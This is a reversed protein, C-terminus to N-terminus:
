KGFFSQSFVFGKELLTKDFNENVGHMNCDDNALSVLLPDVGIVQQIDAVVPLTAGCYDVLVKEGYTKELLKMVHQHMPSSLDVKVPPVSTEVNTIEAAVYEPTHKSVFVELLKIAGNPTQSAALRFNIRVEATSPVINSYGKGTYGSSFGSATHMSRFGVTSCFGEEDGLFYRKIGTEKLMNSKHEDMEICQKRIEPKMMDDDSYFGPIMSVGEANHMKSVLVALEEAANPVTGGFLGSHLNNKATKYRITVNCVGRFSATLVPRYPMEGDSIMVHDAKFTGKEQEARLLDGIGMGGTEEDGEIIFKVNYKLKKRKILSFVSYMHTLVQGKNDVVGRGFLKEDKEMLVFPDGYWGNAADAPQVDYHGYVLCTEAKPDVVYQAFVIPNVDDRFVTVDFDHSEFLAKLWSVTKEIDKKCATDTSVSKLAVFQTLLEYFEEM